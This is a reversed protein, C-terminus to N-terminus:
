EKGAAVTERAEVPKVFLKVGELRTVTVITDAPIPRGDESRASWRKGDVYVEGAPLDNDIAETVRAAAGLVSDANTAVHGRKRNRMVLPRLALLVVASVAFFLVVQLWVEAGLLAAIGAALAGAAFWVSVLAATAAEAIVFLVLAGLWVYVMVM